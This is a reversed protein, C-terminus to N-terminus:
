EGLSPFVARTYRDNPFDRNLVDVFTASITVDFTDITLETATLELPAITQPQSTDSSLFLRSRLVTEQQSGKILKIYRSIRRDINSISVTLEQAGTEGQKPRAVQFATPEFTVTEATELTATFEQKDRVLYVSGAIPHFIELTELTPDNVRAVAYAERQAATLNDDPM